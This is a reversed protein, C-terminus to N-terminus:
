RREGSRETALLQRLADDDLAAMERALADLEDHPVPSPAPPATVPPVSAPQTLRELLHAAIAAANPFSFVLTGPLSLGTAHELRNRLELSTLSDIGMARLAQMPEVREVATRLVAAIESRVFSLMLDSQARTGITDTLRARLGTDAAVATQASGAAGSTLLSMLRTREQLTPHVALWADADFAAVMAHASSAGCYVELARDAHVMRLAGIGSDALVDLGRGDLALGAGAFPGFGISTARIGQVRMSHAIADLVANAAAYNAQGRTGLASAVSSYLAVFDAAALSPLRLLQLLGGVKAAAVSRLRAPTQSALVGDDLVGAAHLM